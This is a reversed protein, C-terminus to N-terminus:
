QEKKEELVLELGVMLVSYPGNYFPINNKYSTITSCLLESLWADFIVLCMTDHWRIREEPRTIGHIM